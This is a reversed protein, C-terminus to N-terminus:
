SKVRLVKVIGKGELEKGRGVLNGAGDLSWGLEKPEVMDGAEHGEFPKLFMVKITELKYWRM